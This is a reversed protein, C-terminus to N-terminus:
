ERVEADLQAAIDRLARGADQHGRFRIRKLGEVLAAHGLDARDGCDLTLVFGDDPFEAALLRNLEAFWLVGYTSAADRPSELEVAVGRSRAAEIAARAEDLNAVVARTKVEATM